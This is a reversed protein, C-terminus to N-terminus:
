LRHRYSLFDDWKEKLYNKLDRSLVPDKGDSYVTILAQDARFVAPSIFDSILPKDVVNVLVASEKALRSIEQNLKSDNTAAIAVVCGKVDSDQFKRNLWKIRDQALLSDLKLTIRPAVVWVRAGAELLSIIKREAVAGGGVVLTKERKLRIAIPFYEM